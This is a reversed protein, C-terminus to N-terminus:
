INQPFNNLTRVEGDRRTWGQQDSFELLPIAYKRSGGIIKKFDGVGLVKNKSFYDELQERLRTKAETHLYLDGPLREVAKEYILLNLFQRIDKEAVSHKEALDLLSPPQLEATRISREIAEKFEEEEPTLRISFEPTKILPGEENLEGEHLLESLLVQFTEEPLETKQELQSKQIGPEKPHNKHYQSVIQVIKSKSKDLLLSVGYHSVGDMLYENFDSSNILSPLFLDFQPEDYFLLRSLDSKTLLAPHIIKAGELLLDEFKNSDLNALHELVQEKRLGFFESAYLVTGGGITFMPSYFRLIFKDAFAVVAEEELRLKIYGAGGPNVPQGSLLTVRALIETTGLHVRVRQNQQLNEAADDLITVKCYLTNTVNLYGPATIQYGRKINETDVNALNLAARESIGVRETDHGHTQIGRIKCPQNGPLLEYPEGTRFEGAIVSGTVVTGFGKVTFVRDVPIRPIGRDVRHNLQSSTELILEQLSEIGTGEIASTHIIPTEEFVTKELAERVTEEVLDIWDADVSDTKTLAVIGNTVGLLELIALHERTQPMVGDDAAIVILAADITAVGTVMNKVFKEHGPVDIFSIHDNLFAFGIDITVGREQEEQLRDTNTGTLAEILATKGHDIHGATGWIIPQM